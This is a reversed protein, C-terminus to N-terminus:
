GYATGEEVPGSFVSYLLGFYGFIIPILTVAFISNLNLALPAVIGDRVSLGVAPDVTPFMTWAVFGVLVLGMGVVSGFWSYPRRSRIAGQGIAACSITLLAAVGVSEISPPPAAGPAVVVAYVLSTAIIGVYAVMSQKGRRYMKRQLRGRSKIAMFAAGFVVCLATLSLGVAVAAIDLVSPLGFLWGAVLMGLLFPAALSGAVFLRDCTRVWLEDSREKRVKSGVGRMVLALLLAFILLYHRSLLNSYVAPFAAFLTTGFLILWVENAKWVPGFAGLMTERDDDDVDAYLIGIGFDFGDLVVYLGFVAFVFAFWLEPLSPHFYAEPSLVSTM